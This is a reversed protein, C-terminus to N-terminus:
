WSSEGHTLFLMWLTSLLYGRHEPDTYDGFLCLRGKGQPCHPTEVSISWITWWLLELLLEGKLMYSFSLKKPFIIFPCKIEMLQPSLLHLAYSFPNPHIQGDSPPLSYAHLAQHISSKYARISMPSFCIACFRLLNFGSILKEIIFDM